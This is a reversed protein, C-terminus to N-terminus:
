QELEDHKSTMTKILNYKQRMQVRAQRRIAISQRWRQFKRTGANPFPEISNSVSLKLHAKKCVETM